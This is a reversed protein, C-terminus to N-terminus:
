NFDERLATLLGIVGMVGKADKVWCGEVVAMFERYDDMFGVDVVRVGEGEVDVVVLQDNCNVM